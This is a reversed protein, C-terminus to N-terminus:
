TQGISLMTIVLYSFFSNLCIQVKKTVKAEVSTPNCIHSGPIIGRYVPNQCLYLRGILHKWLFITSTNFKPIARNPHGKWLRWLRQRQWQWQRQIQCQKRRYSLQCRCIYYLDCNHPISWQPHELHDKDNDKHKYKDNAQKKDTQKDGTMKKITVTQFTVLRFPQERVDLIFLNTVWGTFSHNPWRNILWIGALVALYVLDLFLLHFLIVNDERGEKLGRLVQVLRMKELRCQNFLWSSSCLTIPKCLTSILLEM